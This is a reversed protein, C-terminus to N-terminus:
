NDKKYSSQLQVAINSAFSGDGLNVKDETTRMSKGDFRVVKVEATNDGYTKTVKIDQNGGIKITSHRATDLNDYLTKGM